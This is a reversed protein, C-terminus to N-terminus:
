QYIKKSRESMKEMILEPKKLPEFGFKSYLGHADKTALIWKDVSKLTPYSLINELLIKSYGKGQHENIVFVDLLYAFFAFDTMVRAFAIQKNDYFLGFNMSNQLAIKQEEFTRLYGWYSNKVFDFIMNVDMDEKNASFFIGDKVEVM